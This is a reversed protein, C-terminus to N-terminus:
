KRKTKRQTTSPIQMANRYKAVTRRALKIGQKTLMQTLQEDSYPNSKDEADILAKLRDTVETSDVEEGEANTRTLKFFESLAFMRGDLMATKSNCVRSVTSIDLGTADAIDKLVLRVKDAENRTIFFQRQKNIISQMVMFLTRRRQKINDIFMQGDAVKKQTYLMEEKESRKMKDPNAIYRKMKEVDERRIHIRPVTGSNLHMSINGEIDTEVIFDPILTQVRAKSSEGLSLGPSTNYKKIEEYILKVAQSSLNMEEMLSKTDRNIFMDYHDAIISHMIKLLHEKLESIPEQGDLQREIQLLLCERTDRAGIGPPDFSQLVKLVEEVDKEEVYIYQKFALEEVVSYLSVDIFGRNDLSGILYHLIQEQTEDLDYNIVQSELYEIFSGSDGIPLENRDEGANSAVYVPLDDTGYNGIDSMLSESIDDSGDSYIDDGSDNQEMEDSSVASEDGGEDDGDYRGEELSPNDMLEKRVRDEFDKVPLELLKALQM